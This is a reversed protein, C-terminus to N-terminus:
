WLAVASGLSFRSCVFYQLNAFFFNIECITNFVYRNFKNRFLFLISQLVQLKDRKRMENLLNLLVHASM